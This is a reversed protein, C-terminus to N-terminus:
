RVATEDDGVNRWPQRPQPLELLRIANEVAAPSLHMYRQTTILEQHGALEQIARAPAGRMALHSCFTHRLRHVGSRSRRRAPRKGFMIALSTRPSRHATGRVSCVRGRLHRHERLAAALRDDDARAAATREESDDCARAVRVAPRLAAAQRFRRREMRAGIMEGCGFGREGGLLVILYANRGLSRRRSSGSMNTSTTSAWRRSRSEAAVSDHVADARHRGM